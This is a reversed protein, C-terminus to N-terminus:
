RVVRIILKTLWVLVTLSLTVALAILGVSVALLWAPGSTTKLVLWAFADFCAV